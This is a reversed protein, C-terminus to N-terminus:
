PTNPCCCFPPDAYRHSLAALLWCFFRSATASLSAPKYLSVGSAGAPYPPLPPPPARPSTPSSPPVPGLGARARAAASRPSRSRAGSTRSIYGTTNLRGWLSSRAGAVHIRVALFAAPSPLHQRTWFRGWFCGLGGAQVAYWLTRGKSREREPAPSDPFLVITFCIRIRCTLPNLESYSNNVSQSKNKALRQFCTLVRCAPLKGREDGANQHSSVANPLLCPLLPLSFLSIAAITYKCKRRRAGKSHKVSNSSCRKVPGQTAVVHRSSKVYFCIVLYQMQRCRLFVHWTM